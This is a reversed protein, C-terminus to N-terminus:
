AMSRRCLQDARALLTPIRHAGHMRRVNEAAVDLDMGAASVFLPRRSEARLVREQGRSSDFPSKAIGIVPVQEELARYLHAGLGPSGRDDLWVHGDVLVADLPAQVKALVQLICPLERQYFQGPAYPAVGSIFAVHEERSESSDWDECVVCSAVAPGESGRYDVDVCALM